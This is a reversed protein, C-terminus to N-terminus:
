KESPSLCVEGRACPCIGCLMASFTIVPNLHGGSAPAAAYIFTSLLFVNSIGVYAGVQQIGYNALTAGIQGSVITMTSTGVAEVVASKWITPDFWGGLFYDCNLYWPIHHGDPPLHPRAKSAFSGQFAAMMPRRGQRGQDDHISTVGNDDPAQALQLKDTSATLGAM